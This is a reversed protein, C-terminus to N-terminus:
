WKRDKAQNELDGVISIEDVMKMNINEDFSDEGFDFINRSKIPLPVFWEHDWHDQVFIIQQAQSAFVFSEDLTHDGQTHWILFVLFLLDLPIKYNKEVM